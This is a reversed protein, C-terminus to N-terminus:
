LDLKEELKYVNNDRCGVVLENPSIWVASSFVDHPLKFSPTLIQTHNTNQCSLTALNHTFSYLCGNTTFFAVKRYQIGDV